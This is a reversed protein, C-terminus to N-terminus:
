GDTIEEVSLRPEYNECVFRIASRLDPAAISSPRDIIDRPLGRLGDLPIDGQLLQLLNRGCTLPEGNGHEKM